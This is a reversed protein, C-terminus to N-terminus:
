YKELIWKYDGTTKEAKEIIDTPINEITGGKVVNGKGYCAVRVANNPFRKGGYRTRIQPIGGANLCRRIWAKLTDLGSGIVHVM